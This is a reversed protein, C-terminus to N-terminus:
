DQQDQKGELLKALVAMRPDVQKSGCSCVSENLDCGCSPCLGKCDEKCLYTMDVQLILAPILVDEVEIEAGEIPFVDDVDQADGDRSLIVDADATLDVELPKLCRSCCTSYVTQVTGTLRLVDLHNRITGTYTVPHQFPYAGYLSEGSLDATGSFPIEGDPASILKRLDIKM